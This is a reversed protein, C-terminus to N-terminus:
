FGVWDPGLRVPIEDTDLPLTFKDPSAHDYPTTPLNLVIVETEGINRTAHWVGM